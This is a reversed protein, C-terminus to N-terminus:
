ATKEQPLDIFTPVSHRSVVQFRGVLWDLSALLMLIGTLLRLSYLVNAEWGPVITFAPDSGERWGTVIMVVVYASVSWNWVHFSWARNFIWGDEGLLQVM